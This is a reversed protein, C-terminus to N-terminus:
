KGGRCEKKKDSLTKDPLARYFCGTEDTNWVDEPKYGTLLVAVREFWGTVTEEPVDGCEGSVTMHKINHRKKFSELWGNSEKFSSSPSLKKAILLAEEKM